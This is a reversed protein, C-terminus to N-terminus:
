DVAQVQFKGSRSIMVDDSLCGDVDLTQTQKSKWSATFFCIEFGLM